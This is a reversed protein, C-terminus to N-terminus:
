IRKKPMIQRKDPMSQLYATKDEFIVTEFGFLLYKRMGKQFASSLENKVIM